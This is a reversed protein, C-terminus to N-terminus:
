KMSDEHSNAVEGFKTQRDEIFQAYLLEFLRCRIPRELTPSSIHPFMSM